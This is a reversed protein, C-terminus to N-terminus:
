DPILTMTPNRHHFQLWTKRVGAVRGGDMDPQGYLRLVDPLDSVSAGRISLSGSM